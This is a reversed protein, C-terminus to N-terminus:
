LGCVRGGVELLGAKVRSVGQGRYLSVLQSLLGGLLRTVLRHGALRAALGPSHEAVRVLCSLLVAVM